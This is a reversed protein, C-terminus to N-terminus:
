ESDQALSVKDYVDRLVLSCGISQLDIISELGRIDALLWRGDAQKVYQEIRYEDQAVLMYEALSEITRYYGAKALRNYSETSKSLVEVVLTPNLLTDLYADELEPEGCVVVVDPYVYSRSAPAKVRMEGPYVECPKGKLKANLQAGINGAILNHKRSAGTMAFVEGNVYENKYEAKREIALYEEQSVYTKVQRSM